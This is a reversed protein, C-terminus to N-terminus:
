LPDVYQHIFKNLGEEYLVGSTTPGENHTGAIELFRKPEPAIEYLRQGHSFSIAEDDRSHVILIPCNVRRLHDATDYKLRMLLKVPMFWYRAAAIDSLSTFTSELILAGPSHRAALWAAIGGGLSRGFVIVKDPGVQREKVIHRWVAEADWYTGQETPKGESAGYGRYDFIFIELGLRNFLQISELRHGINGANGHCFLLVGRAGEKPIFWGSLRLGDCTEFSISEFSLGIHSPDAALVPLVLKPYYVYRSQFILLYGAFIIYVGVAGVAIWVAIM